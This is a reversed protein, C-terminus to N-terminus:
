PTLCDRYDFGATTGDTRQLFFSPKGTPDPAVWIGRVGCGILRAANPHHLLLAKLFELDSPNVWWPSPRLVQWVRREDDNQKVCYCMSPPGRGNSVKGVEFLSGDAVGKNIHSRATFNSLGAEAAYEVVTCPRDFSATKFRSGAIDHSSKWGRMACFQM